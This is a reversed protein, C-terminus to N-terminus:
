HAHFGGLNAVVVGATILAMGILGGGGFRHGAAPDLGHGMALPGTTLM